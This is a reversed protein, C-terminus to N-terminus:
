SLPHKGARQHQEPLLLRFLGEKKNKEARKKKSLIIPISSVSNSKMKENLTKGKM